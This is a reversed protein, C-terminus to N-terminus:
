SAHVQSFGKYIYSLTIDLLQINPWRLYLLHVCGPFSLSRYVDMSHTIFVIHFELRSSKMLFVYMIGIITNSIRVFLIHSLRCTVQIQNDILSTICTNISHTIVQWQLMNNFTSGCYISTLQFCDILGSSSKSIQHYKSICINLCHVYSAFSDPYSIVCLSDLEYM